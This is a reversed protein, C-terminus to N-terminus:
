WTSVVSEKIKRALERTLIPMTQYESSSYGSSAYSDASAYIPRNQFYPKGTRNDILTCEATMEIQYSSGLVTDDSRTASVNKSYRIIRVILSAQGDAGRVQLSKEQALSDALQQHLLAQAQPAFTDNIVPQITISSFPVSAHTGLQYNSCGCLFLVGLGLTALLQRSRFFASPAHRFM